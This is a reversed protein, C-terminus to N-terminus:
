APKKETLYKWYRRPMHQIHLKTNKRAAINVSKFYQQWLQQYMEEKEDYAISADKGNATNESFDIAVEEVCNLDYYMGYRRKGDYILWRQDAYRDQFHKIIIPLVNYDPDILAYFLDDGTKQFRVFAEMRHKERWVRKATQTVALVAPHSFDNEMFQESSFVYQIYHLLTNEIGPLESLFTRYVQDMAERTLKKELGKYVREKHEPKNYVTHPQQFINGQFRHSPCIDVDAYKYYYVDFVACLFGDFSGDYLVTQM